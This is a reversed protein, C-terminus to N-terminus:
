ADLMSSSAWPHTPAMSPPYGSSLFGYIRTPPTELTQKLLADRLKGFSQGGVGVGVYTWM